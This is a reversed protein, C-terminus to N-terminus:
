GVSVGVSMGPLAAQPWNSVTFVVDYMAPVFGQIPAPIVEALRARVTVGLANFTVSSAEGKHLNVLSDEPVQAVVDRSSLDSITLLPVFSASSQSGNSSGSQPLISFGAPPSAQSPLGAFVRVGSADVLDGVTGGVSTVTGDMPSVLTLESVANQDAVVQARARALDVQTAALQAPTAPASAAGLQGQAVALSAKASQLSAGAGDRLQQAVAETHPVEAQAGALAAQDRTIDTQLSQCTSYEQVQADAPSTTTTPAPPGVVSTTPAPPGVFPAVTTTTTTSVTVGTFQSPVVVGNPCAAAFAAQDAALTQQSSAVAGQAEQISASAVATADMLAAEANLVAAQAQSVQSDLLQNEGPSLYPTQMVDLEAQEADVVATEAALTAIAAAGDQRALVQGKSVHEGPAVDIEVVRGTTPFELSASNSAEVQGDFTTASAVTNYTLVSAVVAGALLLAVMM